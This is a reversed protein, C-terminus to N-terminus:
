STYILVNESEDRSEQEHFHELLSCYLVTATSFAFVYASALFVSAM